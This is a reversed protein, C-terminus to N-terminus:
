FPRPDTRTDRLRVPVLAHYGATGDLWGAIDVVVHAASSVHVCVTGATDVAAVVLGAATGGAAVNVDSALPAGAACPYVTAFGAGIADTLTVNVLAAGGPAAGARGVDVVLDRDPSVRAGAGERTDVLRTPTVTTVGTGMIWGLVDMVVHTAAKTFVCLEGSPGLKSVALNPVVQRADHNVNSALPPAGGCPYLTLFGSAAGDVATLNVVAGVAGVPAGTPTVRVVGGDSLRAGGTPGSADRTDLARGLAPVVSGGPEVYGAVDVIVHTDISAHVCVEGAPGLGTVVHNAVTQDFTVNLNSAVPLPADCPHVTLFGARAPDTATVTLVVAAADAPVGNRGAVPVRLETGARVRTYGEVTARILEAMRRAGTANLHIADYTLGPEDAIAAWDALTLEPHRDLADRLHENVTPFYWYYPQVGAWASASVFEPKVERLTVWVVRKAGAALLNTVMADVSRDFRAPDWYPYNYGTAVVAVDGVLAADAPVETAAVDTFVAPRGAVTVQWGPFARPLAEKAGLVVSDSIVYLRHADDVAAGAPTPAAAVVPLLSAMLVLAAAGAM